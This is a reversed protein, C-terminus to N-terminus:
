LMSYFSDKLNSFVIATTFIVLFFLFLIAKYM